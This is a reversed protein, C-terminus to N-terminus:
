RRLVCAGRGPNKLKTAARAAETMITKLHHKKVPSRGSHRKGASEVNGACLGAQSTFPVIPESFSKRCPSRQLSLEAPRKASAGFFDSIVSDIKRILDM